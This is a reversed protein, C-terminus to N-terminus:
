IYVIIATFIGLTDTTAIRGVGGIEQFWTGLKEGITSSAIPGLSILGILFGTAVWECYHPGTGVL